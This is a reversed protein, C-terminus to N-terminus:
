HIVFSANWMCTQSQTVPKKKHMQELQCRVIQDSGFGTIQLLQRLGALTTSTKIAFSVKWSARFLNSNSLAGFGGNFIAM